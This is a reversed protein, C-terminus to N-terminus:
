VNNEVVNLYGLNIGFNKKFLLGICRKQDLKELVLLGNFM